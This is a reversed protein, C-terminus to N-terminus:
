DNNDNTGGGKKEEKKPLILCNLERSDKMKIDIVKRTDEDNKKNNGDKKINELCHRVRVEYFAEIGRFRELLDLLIKLIEEAIKQVQEKGIVDSYSPDIKSDAEEAFPSEKEIRMSNIFAYMGFYIRNIDRESLFPLFYRYLVTSLYSTVAYKVLEIYREIRALEETKKEEEVKLSKIEDYGLENHLMVEIESMFKEMFCRRVKEQLECLLTKKYEVERGSDYKIKFFDEKQEEGVFISALALTAPGSSGTLAVRFYNREHLSDADERWLILQGVEIHEKYGAIQCARKEIDKIDYIYPDEYIKKKEKDIWQNYAYCSFTNNCVSCKSQTHQTLIVKKENNVEAFGKYIKKCEGNKRLYKHIIARDDKIKQWIYDQLNEGLPHVDEGISIYNLRKADEAGEKSDIAEIKYEGIVTRKSLYNSLLSIAEFDWKSTYGKPEHYSTDLSHAQPLYITLKNYRLMPSWFRNRYYSELTLNKEKREDEFLKLFVKIETKQENAELEVKVSKYLNLIEKGYVDWNKQLSKQYELKNKIMLKSHSEISEQALALQKYFGDTDNSRLIAKWLGAVDFVNRAKKESLEEVEKREKETQEHLVTIAYVDLGHAVGLWFLSQLSNNSIDVVIQNTYRLTKLMVHYLCFAKMNSCNCVEEEKQKEDQLVDGHIGSKARNVYVPNDPYVLLGRNRIHRKVYRIISDAQATTIKGSKKIRDKELEEESKLPMFDESKLKNKSATYTAQNVGIHIIEGVNYFLNLREKADKDEEPIVNGQVLVGVRDGCFCKEYRMRAVIDHYFNVICVGAQEKNLFEDMTYVVVTNNERYSNNYQERLADYIEKGINPKDNNKAKDNNTAEYNNKKKNDNDNDAQNNKPINEHYPFRSYKIDSFGHKVSTAEKYELYHTRANEKDENKEDKNEDDNNTSDKLKNSLDNKYRIGYYEFLKKRWPYCDIHHELWKCDDDKKVKKPIVMKYYSESYCIPLIMKGLAVAMGLEYFVNPNQTSVDVVVLDAIQMQQCIRSCIIYNSAPDSDARVVDIGNVLVFDNYEAVEETIREKSCYIRKRDNSFAFYAKLSKVYDHIRWKYVVDSMDSFNMIVFANIRGNKHQERRERQINMQKSCYEGTMFCRRLQNSEETSIFCWACSPKEAVKNKKSNCEEYLKIKKDDGQNECMAIGGM